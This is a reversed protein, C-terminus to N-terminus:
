ILDTDEKFSHLSNHCLLYNSPLNINEWLLFLYVLASVWTVIFAAALTVSTLKIIVQNNMSQHM